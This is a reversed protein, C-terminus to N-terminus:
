AVALLHAYPSDEITDRIPGPVATLTLASDSTEREAVRTAAALTALGVDDVSRLGALDVLVRDAGADIPRILEDRLQRSTDHHLDGSVKVLAFRAGREFRVDHVRCALAGVPAIPAASAIASEVDAALRTGVTHAAACFREPWARWARGEPRIGIQSRLESWPVAELSVRFAPRLSGTRLTGPLARWADCARTPPRTAIRDVHLSAGPTVTRGPLRDLAVSVDHIPREVDHSVYMTAFPTTM